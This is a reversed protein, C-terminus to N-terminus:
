RYKFRRASSPERWLAQLIPGILITHFEQHPKKTLPCLKPADCKPCMDCNSFPGTFALCSNKCMPHVVSTVGTIDTIVRKMQEYSPIQDGPHRRLIAEHMSVYTNVSSKMSVLFTELGLRLDPHNEISFIQTPPNRLRHLWKSDMKNYKDELSASKLAEIFQVTIQLDELKTAEFITKLEEEYSNLNTDGINEAPSAEELCGPDAAEPIGSTDENHAPPESSDETNAIPLIGASKALPQERAEIPPNPM